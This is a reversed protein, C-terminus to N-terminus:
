EQQLVDDIGVKSGNLMNSATANRKHGDKPAKCNKSNHKASVRFGHSWCYPRFLKEDYNSLTTCRPQSSVSSELLQIKALATTLTQTLTTL